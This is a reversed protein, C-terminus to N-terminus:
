RNCESLAAPIEVRRSKRNRSLRSPRCSPHRRRLLWSPYWSRRRSSPTVRWRRRLRMFNPRDWRRRGRSGNGLRRQGATVAGLRFGDFWDQIARYGAPNQYRIDRYKLPAVLPPEGDGGRFLYEAFGDKFGHAFDASHAAPGDKECIMQWSNEAWKENRVRERHIELPTKLAVCFNRGADEVLACGPSVIGLGLLWLRVAAKM